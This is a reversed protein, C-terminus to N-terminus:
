RDVLPLLGVIMLVFAPGFIGDKESLMKIQGNLFFNIVLSFSSEFFKLCKTGFIAINM